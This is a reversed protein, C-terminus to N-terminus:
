HGRSIGSRTEVCRKKKERECLKKDINEENNLLRQKQFYYATMFDVLSSWKWEGKNGNKVDMEHTYRNKHRHLINVDWWLDKLINSDIQNINM